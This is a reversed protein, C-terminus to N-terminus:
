YWKGLSNGGKDFFSHRFSPKKLEFVVADRKRIKMMVVSYLMCLTIKAFFAYPIKKIAYAFPTHM